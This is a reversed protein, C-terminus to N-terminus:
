GTMQLILDLCKSRRELYSLRLHCRRGPSPQKYVTFIQQKPYGGEHTIKAVAEPYIAEAEADASTAECQVKINHLCSRKLKMFGDRGAESKEDAVEEGREARM